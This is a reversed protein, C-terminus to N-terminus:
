RFLWPGVLLGLAFSAGNAVAATGFAFLPTVHRFLLAYLLTEIGVAWSESALTRLAESWPLQMFVFWVLPHTALNALIPGIVVRMRRTGVASRDWLLGAAIPVEVALALM